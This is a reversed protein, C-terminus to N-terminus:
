LVDMGIFEDEELIRNWGHDREKWASRDIRKKMIQEYSEGKVGLLRLREKTEAYPAIYTIM